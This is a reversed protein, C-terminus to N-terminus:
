ASGTMLESAKPARMASNRRASALWCLTSVRRGRRMAARPNPSASSM